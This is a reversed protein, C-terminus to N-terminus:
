LSSFFSCYPKAFNTTSNYQLNDITFVMHLDQESKWNISYHTRVVLNTGKRPSCNMLEASSWLYNRYRCTRNSHNYLRFDSKRLCAMVVLCSTSCRLMMHMRKSRVTAAHYTCVVDVHLPSSPLTRLTTVLLPSSPSITSRLRNHHAVHVQGEGGPWCPQEKAGVGKDRVRYEADWTHLHEEM